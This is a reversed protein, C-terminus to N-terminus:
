TLSPFVYIVIAFLSLLIQVSEFAVLKRKSHTLRSLVPFHINISNTNNNCLERWFQSCGVVMLMFFLVVEDDFSGNNSLDDLIRGDVGALGIEGAEQILLAVGFCTALLFTISDASLLFDLLAVGFCTALLHTISDASLLFDLLAVGFCTALLYTISDASLLFDVGLDRLIATLKVGMRSSLLNVEVTMLFISRELTPDLVEFGALSQEVGRLVGFVTAVSKM